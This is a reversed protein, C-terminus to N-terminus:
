LKFSLEKCGAPNHDISRGSAAAESIKLNGLIARIIGVFDIGAHSYFKKDEAAIFANKVRDPIKDVPVFIRKEAAYEM